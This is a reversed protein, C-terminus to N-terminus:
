VHPLISHLTKLFYEVDSIANYGHLSVRLRGAHCMVHIRHQKLRQYIEEAQAHRFAVIGALSCSQDPTLLDVRLQKLGDLCARVLPGAAAEIASITVRHLYELATRIAYVAPYNPMGVCFSGAGPKVVAPRDFRNAAFADILNFWGGASM